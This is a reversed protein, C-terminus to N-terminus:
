LRAIVLECGQYYIQPDKELMQDQLVALVDFGKNEAPAAEVVIGVTQENKNNLEDGPQPMSECDVHARYLHRKLKGLYETRAIIEQGVYCGKKFSVGGQKELNIMQPTFLERTQPYIFGLGNQINFAHWTLADIPPIKAAINKYLTASAEPDAIILHTSTETQLSPIRIVTASTEKELTLDGAIEVIMKKLATLTVKSFVAYKKLHDITPLVMSQPLLLYCDNKSDRWIYFNAMMRGKPNCCAGLSAEHEKLQKVDCTLQGQLFELTKDGSVKILEFDNLNAIWHHPKTMTPFQLTILVLYSASGKSSDMRLAELM